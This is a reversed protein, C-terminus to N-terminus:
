NRCDIMVTGGGCIYVDNVRKDGEYHEKLDEKLEEYEEMEVGKEIRVNILRGIPTVAYVGDSTLTRYEMGGILGYSEYTTELSNVFSDTKSYLESKNQCSTM